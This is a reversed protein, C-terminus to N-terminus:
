NNVLYQTESINSSVMENLMKVISPNNLPVDDLVEKIEETSISYNNDNYSYNLVINLEPNASMLLVYANALDGLPPRDINSHVFNARITTGKGVESEISIDGGSQIASQKLLPIGLGVKRTTRSTFYPDTVKQVTEASMGKGNDKIIINLIDRVLNEIVSIEIWKAGASISNQVIDLIHMALDNM